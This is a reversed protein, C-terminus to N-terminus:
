RGYEERWYKIFGVLDNAFEQELMILFDAQRERYNLFSIFFANNPPYGAFIQSYKKKDYFEITDMTNVIQKIMVQKAEERELLNRTGMNHYLSDLLYAGYILHNTFRRSDAQQQQYALLDLSNAGYKASLFRMAGQTGIFSALNENFTMSDPIFLTGHTLEHILTGSLNGATDFLMNSLIPDKFWGLTSWGSVPRMDVDLGEEQLSLALERAKEQDFFGKYTFSGIVPFQWMRPVFAYAECATVVWLIEKGQQDYLTTYNNNRTLGLSDFAFQRIEGVLSLKQNLSDPLQGSQLVEAVPQAQWIIKFQGAAQQIGYGILELNLAVLAILLALLSFGIKRFM